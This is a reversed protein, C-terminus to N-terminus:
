TKSQTMIFKKHGPVLLTKRGRIPTKCSMCRYRQYAMTATTEIGKKVVHHSGCNPCMPKDDNETIETSDYLELAAFIAQNPHNKIWPLLKKYLPEMIAVDQINYAKMEKWAVPDGAMCERWLDMGRHKVKTGLGLANAVYDLKNSAFKFRSRVVTYLDIQHYGDPPPMNLLVFEKNITPIDFKKGNYHIVADANDLLNWLTTIMDDHGDHHISKFTIADNGLWKAAYCITHGPQAIQNISITQKFLGWAYVVHPATEIDLLLIKM